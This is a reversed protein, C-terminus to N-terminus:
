FGKRLRLEIVEKSGEIQIKVSRERVELCNVEVTESDLQIPVKMEGEALTVNNIIALRHHKGFSIGKLVLQSSLSPGRATVNTNGDQGKARRSSDPFFPDKGNPLTDAFVAKPPAAPPPNTSTASSPGVAASSVRPGM